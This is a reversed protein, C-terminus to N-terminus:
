MGQTWIQPTGVLTLNMRRMTEAYVAMNPWSHAGCECAIKGNPQEKVACTRGEKKCFPCM